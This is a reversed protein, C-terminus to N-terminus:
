ISIILKERAEANIGIGEKHFRASLSGLELQNKNPNGQHTNVQQQFQSSPQQNQTKNLLSEIIVKLNKELFLAKFFNALDL